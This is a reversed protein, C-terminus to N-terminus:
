RHNMIERLKAPAVHIAKGNLHEAAELLSENISPHPYLPFTMDEIRACLEMALTGSTILEIAGEGMMHIGLILETEADAVIKVFGERKGMLSAYGNATLSFQGTLVKHGHEIAAEETLGVSAIPPVTHVVRPLFTLDFESMEGCLSEAAVKSQKIAKVALSPGHTIDGIAAIHSLITRCQQDIIVFGNEDTNIGIRDIGLDDTNPKMKASFFLHTADLLREEGNVVYKVAIGTSSNHSVSLIEASKVLQIKNKKLLRKIERNLSSDFSFDDKEPLMVTVYSGFIRYSIAMELSLADDGYIVLHDPIESLNAIHWSDLIRINDIKIAPHSIPSGGTAIVANKFQYIEYSNTQEVGIRNESLFFANGYIIEIKNAKCLAKIGDVLRNIVNEKQMLRKEHNVRLAEQEFGFEEYKQLDTWASAARTLHKSPICGKNLCIGGLRDREILTVTRGLQAARIAASYGGPGGGIVIFDHEHAMEGVVM